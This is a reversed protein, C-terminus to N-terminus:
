GDRFRVQEDFNKPAARQHNCLEAVEKNAV